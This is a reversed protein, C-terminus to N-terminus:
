ECVLHEYKGVFNKYNYGNNVSLKDQIFRIFNLQDKLSAWGKSEGLGIDMWEPYANAEEGFYQHLYENMKEEGLVKAFGQIVPFLNPTFTMLERGQVTEIGNIIKTM